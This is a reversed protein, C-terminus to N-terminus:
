SGERAPLISPPFCTWSWLVSTSQRRADILISTGWELYMCAAVREPGPEWGAGVQLEGEALIKLCIKEEDDTGFVALLDERKALVGKSVNSFITTSQLVEDLDKESNQPPAPPLAPRAFHLCSLLLSTTLVSHPPPRVATTQPQAPNSAAPNLSGKSFCCLHPTFDHLSPNFM